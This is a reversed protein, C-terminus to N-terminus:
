ISSLITPSVRGCQAGAALKWWEGHWTKAAMAMAENGREMGDIIVPVAEQGCNIDFDAYWALGLQNANHATIRAL